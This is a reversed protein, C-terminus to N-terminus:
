KTKASRETTRPPNHSKANASHLPRHQKRNLRIEDIWGQVGARVAEETIDDTRQVTIGRANIVMGIEHSRLATILDEGMDWDFTVGHTAIGPANIIRM